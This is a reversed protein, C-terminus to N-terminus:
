GNSNMAVNIAKQLKKVKNDISFDRVKRLSNSILKERPKRNKLLKVVSEAYAQPNDPEVLLVDENMLYEDTAKTHPAVIPLGIAMAELIKTPFELEGMVSDPERSVLFVDSAALYKPVNDHPVSMSIVSRELVMLKSRITVLDEEKSLLFLFKATPLENLVLPIAKILVETNQWPDLSGAYTITYGYNLGTANKWLSKDAGYKKYCFKEIDVTPPVVFVKRPQAGLEVCCEKAFSTQVTIGECWKISEKTTWNYLRYKLRSFPLKREKLRSKTVLHADFVIPVKRLKFKRLLLLALTYFPDRSLIVEPNLSLSKKAVKLANLGFGAKSPKIRFIKVEDIDSFSKQESYQKTVVYVNCGVKVLGRATEFIQVAGGHTGPIKDPCAIVIEYMSKLNIIGLLASFIISTIQM